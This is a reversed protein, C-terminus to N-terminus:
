SFFAIMFLLLLLSEPAWPAAFPTVEVTRKAVHLCTWSSVVSQVDLKTVSCAADELSSTSEHSSSSTAHPIGDVTLASSSMNSSDLALSDTEKCARGAGLSNTISQLRDRISHLTSSTRNTLSRLICALPLSRLITFSISPLWPISHVHIPFYSLIIPHSSNLIQHPRKRNKVRLRHDRAGVSRANGHTHLEGIASHEFSICFNWVFGSEDFM